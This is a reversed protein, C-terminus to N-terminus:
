YAPYTTRFYKTTLGNTSESYTCSGGSTCTINGAKAWSINDLSSEVTLIYGPIGFFSVIFQGNSITSTRNTYSRVTSYTIKGVDTGGHGDSITYNFTDTGEAVRLSQPVTYFLYGSGSSIAGGKGSTTDFTTIELPYGQPSTGSSLITSILIKASGIGLNINNSLDAATPGPAPYPPTTTRFYKITLGNAPQSFSGNGSSACTMEGAWVWSIKDVSSEITYVRNPICYISFVFDGDVLTVPQNIAFHTAPDIEAYARETIVTITGVDTGGHGDDITYNFSDTGEFLQPLTYPSYFIWTDDSSILAGEKTTTDLNSITLTHGHPSNSGSLITSKQIKLSIGMGVTYNLNAAIPPINATSILTAVGSSGGGSGGSNQTNELTTYFAAGEGNPAGSDYYQYTPGGPSEPISPFVGADVLDQMSRRYAQNSPSTDNPDSSEVAPMSESASLPDQSFKGDLRLYNGPVTEGNANMLALASDVQNVTIIKQADRAKSKSRSVTAAVVSSLTSIISIVVMIEILTFGLNKKSM